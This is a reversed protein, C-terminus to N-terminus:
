NNINYYSNDITVDLATLPDFIATGLNTIADSAWDKYNSRAVGIKNTSVASRTIGRNNTLPVLGNFGYASIPKFYTEDEFSYRLIETVNNYAPFLAKDDQTGSFTINDTSRANLPITNYAYLYNSDHHMHSSYCNGLVSEKFETNHGIDIYTKDYDYRYSSLRKTITPINDVMEVLDYLYTTPTSAFDTYLWDWDTLWDAPDEGEDFNHTYKFLQRCIILKDHCNGSRRILNTDPLFTRHETFFVDNDNATNVIDFGEFASMINKLTFNDSSDLTCIVPHAHFVEPNGIGGAPTYIDGTQNTSISLGLTHSVDETIYCSYFLYDGLWTPSQGFSGVGVQSLGIYSSDDFSNSTFPTSLQFSETYFGNEHIEYFNLSGSNQVGGGNYHTVLYDDNVALSNDGPTLSFNPAAIVGYGGVSLKLIHDVNWQGNLAQYPEWLDTNRNLKFIDYKEVYKGDHYNFFSHPAGAYVFLYDGHVMISSPSTGVANTDKIAGWHINNETFSVVDNNLTKYKLHLSQQPQTPDDLRTFPKLTQKIDGNSDFVLLKAENYRGLPEMDYLLSKDDVNYIRQPVVSYNSAAGTASTFLTQLTGTRYTDYSPYVKDMMATYTSGMHLNFMDGNDAFKVISKDTTMSCSLWTDPDHDNLSKHTDIIDHYHSLASTPMDIKQYEDFLWKSLKKYNAESSIPRGNSDLDEFRERSPLRDNVWEYVEPTNYILTDEPGRFYSAGSTTDLNGIVGDKLMQKFFWPKENRLEFQSDNFLYDYPVAGISTDPIVQIDTRKSLGGTLFPTKLIKNPTIEEEDNNMLVGIKTMMERGNNIDFQRFLRNFDDGKDVDRYVTTQISLLGNNNSELTSGPLAGTSEVISIIDNLWQNEFTSPDGHIWRSMSYEQGKYTRKAHMCHASKGSAYLDADYTTLTETTSSLQPMTGDWSVINLREQILHIPSIIARDLMTSGAFLIGILKWASASPVTSSLQAFVATGSDGPQGVYMSGDGEVNICEPFVYPVYSNPATVAAAGYVSASLYGSGTNTCDGVVSGERGLPGLTRGARFIPSQFNLSTDDFLSYIEEETAFKYPGPETFNLIQNSEIPDILDYSSLQLIAADVYSEPYHHGTFSMWPTREGFLTARKCNGIFDASGTLEKTLTPTKTGHTNNQGNNSAILYSETKGTNWDWGWHTLESCGETVARTPQVAGRTLVDNYTNMCGKNQGYNIYLDTRNWISPMMMSNNYVHNNSLAVIQGDRKDRVFIGLTADSFHEGWNTHPLFGGNISSIGGKLPRHKQYHEQVPDVEGNQLHCYAALTFEEMAIVDTVVDVGDINLKEPIIEELSLSNKKKKKAVNLIISTKGTSQGKIKKVGVSISVVGYQRKLFHSPDDNVDKCFKFLKQINTM